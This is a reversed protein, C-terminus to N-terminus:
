QSFLRFSYNHSQHTWSNQDQSHQSTARRYRLSRPRFKAPWERALWQLRAGFKFCNLPSIFANQNLAETLYSTYGHAARVNADIRHLQFVSASGCSLDSSCVDSSWDRGCRTHRRRSSFFFSCMVEDIYQLLVFFLM